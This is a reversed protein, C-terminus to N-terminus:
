WLSRFLSTNEPRILLTPGSAYASTSNQINSPAFREDFLTPTEGVSRSFSDAPRPRGARGHFRIRQRPHAQLPLCSTAEHLPPKFGGHNAFGCKRNMAARLCGCWTVQAQGVGRRSSSGRICVSSCPHLHSKQTRTTRPEIKEL